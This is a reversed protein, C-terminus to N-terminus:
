HFIVNSLLAKENEYNLKYFISKKCVKIDYNYSKIDNEVVPNM